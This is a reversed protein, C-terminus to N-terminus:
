KKFWRAVGYAVGAAAVVGFYPGTIHVLRLVVIFYHLRVTSKAENIRPFPEDTPAEKGLFECLPEWGDKPHFNLLRQPPVISRVHAYHDTYTRRLAETNSM